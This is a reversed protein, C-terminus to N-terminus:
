FIVLFLILFGFDKQNQFFINYREHFWKNINLHDDNKICAYYITRFYLSHNILDHIILLIKRVKFSLLNEIIIFIIRAWILLFKEFVINVFDIDFDTMQSKSNKKVPVGSEGM